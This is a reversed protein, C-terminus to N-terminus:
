ALKIGRLGQSYDKWLMAHGWMPAQIPSNINKHWGYIGPKNVTKGYAEPIFVVDKHTGVLLRFPRGDIQKEIFDAQKNALARSNMGALTGDHNQPHPALKLDAAEYIADVMLPTPLVLGNVRAYEVAEGIGIPALYTPSVLYDRGDITLPVWSDLPPFEMTSAPPNQEIGMVLSGRANSTSLPPRKSKLHTYLWAGGLWLGAGIVFPVIM